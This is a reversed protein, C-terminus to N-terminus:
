SPVGDRQATVGHLVCDANTWFQKRGSADVWAGIGYGNEIRACSCGRDIAKFSGPPYTDLLNIANTM